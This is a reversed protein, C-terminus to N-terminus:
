AASAKDLKLTMVPWGRQAATKTLVEDPNVAVPHEVRELLACLHAESSDGVAAQRLITRVTRRPNFATSADQFVPQMKIRAQRLANGSLTHLYAGDFLVEGEDADIM